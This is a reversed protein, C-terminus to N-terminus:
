RSIRTFQGNSMLVAASGDSFSRIVRPIPIPTIALKNTLAYVTIAGAPTVFAIEPTNASTVWMGLGGVPKIGGGGEFGIGGGGEFTVDGVPFPLAITKTTTGLLTKRCDVLRGDTLKAAVRFSGKPQDHASAVSRTTAYTGAVKCAFSVTRTDVDIITLAFGGPVVYGRTDESMLPVATPQPIEHVEQASWSSVGFGNSNILRTITGDRLTVGGNGRLNKGFVGVPDFTGTTGGTLSLRVNRSGDGFLLYGANATLNTVTPATTSAVTPSQRVLAFSDDLEYARYGASDHGVYFLHDDRMEFSGLPAPGPVSIESETEGLPAESESLCAPLALLCLLVTKTTM